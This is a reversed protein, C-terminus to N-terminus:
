NIFQFLNTRSKRYTKVGLIIVLIFILTFIESYFLAYRLKGLNRAAIVTISIYATVYGRMITVILEITPKQIATAYGGIAINFGLVLFTTSFARIATSAYNLFSETNEKMFVLVIQESFLQVLAFALLSLVGVTVFLMRKLASVQQKDKKGLSYSLLPNAGQSVAVMANTTLSFLYMAISFAALEKAGGYKMLAHNYTFTIFGVSLETLAMPIGFGWRKAINKLKIEPMVFKLRSNLSLFHFIYIVSPLAQSIGTAIAAGRVGKGWLIVFVYDLVVNTLASLTMIRFGFRPHGDAKIMLEFVYTLIFFPSFLAIAGLYDRVLKRLLGENDLVGILWDLNLYSTIAVCLGFFLAVAVTESFRINAIKEEGKGLYYTTATLGGMSLLMSVAFLLTVYPMSVNVASLGDLGVGRGVFIGDVITCLSFMLIGGVSPLVFELFRKLLLKKKM